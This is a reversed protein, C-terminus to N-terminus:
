KKIKGFSILSILIKIINQWRPDIKYLAIQFDIYDKLTKNTRGRYLVTEINKQIQKQIREKAKTFFTSQLAISTNELSDLVQIIYRADNIRSMTIKEDKQFFAYYYLSSNIKLNNKAFLIILFSKLADECSVFSKLNSLHTAIFTDVQKLVSTKYAKDWVNWSLYSHSVFYNDVLDKADQKLQNYEGLSNFCINYENKNPFFQFDFHVIDIYTGTLKHYESIKKYIMELCRIDLFDDSDLYLTYHGKAEKEGTIRCHFLGLNHPNKHIRIRIDQQTYREAIQMSNDSGCDDVIIVEFDKFTQSICSDLCRAIYDQTNYVPIVISFFPQM